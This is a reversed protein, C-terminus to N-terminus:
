LRHNLRYSLKMEEGRVAVAHCNWHPDKQTVVKALRWDLVARLLSRTLKARSQQTPPTRTQSERRKRQTSQTEATLRKLLLEGCLRRPRRSSASFIQFQSM